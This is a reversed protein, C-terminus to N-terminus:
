TSFLPHEEFRKVTVVEKPNRLTSRHVPFNLLLALGV